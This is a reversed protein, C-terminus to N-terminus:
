QFRIRPDILALLLDSFLRGLLTMLSMLFILGMVVNYDRNVVSNFFLLGMGDIDFVREILLSGAFMITFIESLGTALPILSNRFAHKFVAQKFRAGKVMATRVYDKKIEELLSNKMLVTLFAFQGAMYCIMPLIMHHLFDFVKGIPSLEEYEESVIGTMPFLDLYSGGCLFVISLIGLAYSPIVYGIYIFVSSMLDFLSGEKIAKLIGLPICILYSLFFSSLGFFISIPFRESIVKFVPEEYFYSEGLNLTCLNYVWNFYRIHFPKDFGYYAKINEIEERTIKQESSQGRGQQDSQVRSLYQEVPGGPVFQILIFCLFSIGLLTPVM